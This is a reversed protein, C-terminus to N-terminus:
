ERCNCHCNKQQIMPLKHVMSSYPQHKTITFLQTVDACNEVDSIKLIVNGRSGCENQQCSYIPTWLQSKESQVTYIVFQAHKDSDGFRRKAHKPLVTFTQDLKNLLAIKNNSDNIFTTLCGFITIEMMAVCLISMFMFMKNKNIM